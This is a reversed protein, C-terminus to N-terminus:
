DSPVKDVLFPTLLEHEVYTEDERDYLELADQVFVTKTQDVAM